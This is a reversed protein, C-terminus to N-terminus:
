TINNHQVIIVVKGLPNEEKYYRLAKAVESLQYRKDIIPIVKGIEILEKMFIM